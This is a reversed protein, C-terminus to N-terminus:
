AFGLASHAPHETKAPLCTGAPPCQVAHDPRVHRSLISVALTRTSLLRDLEVLRLSRGLCGHRALVEARTWAHINPYFTELYDNTQVTRDTLIGLEELRFGELRANRGVACILADFEIRRKGNAGDVIIIFKREGVRECRLATHGSLM